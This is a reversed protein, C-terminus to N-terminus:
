GPGGQVTRYLARQRDYIRRLIDPVALGLARLLSVAGATAPLRLFYYEEAEIAM